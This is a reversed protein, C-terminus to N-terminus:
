RKRICLLTIDDKQNYYFKKIDEVIYNLIDECKKERNKYFVDILRDYGYLQNNSDIAEITGDTFLLLMDGKELNLESNETIGAVDEMIGSWLGKTEIREIKDERKRYVLFDLYLGSYLLRNNDYSFITLTIYDKEQLRNQINDFLTRNLNVIIDKPTNLGSKILSNIMSQTMMMILGSTVGHGTVDGICFWERNNEKIYDFYDGGVEEATIMMGSIEFNTSEFNKPLMATQIRHAIEMEKELREKEIIKKTLIANELTISAASSFANLLNFDSETFIDDNNKETINVCGFVRNKVILPFIIFSDTKYKEKKQFSSNEIEPVILAKKNQLVWYSPSTPDIDIISDKLEKKLTEGNEFISKILWKKNDDSLLLLSGRRSDVFKCALEVILDSLIEINNTEINSDESMKISAEYLLKLNKNAKITEKLLKQYRNGLLLAIQLVLITFGFTALREAKIFDQAILIDNIVTMIFIIVGIILLRAEISKYYFAYKIIIYITYVIIFLEVYMNVYFNFRNFLVPSSTIFLYVVAFFTYIDIAITFKTWIKNKFLFVIFHAWVAFVIFLTGYEIGKLLLFKSISFVEYKIQNVFFFYIACILCVLSFFLFDFKTNQYIFLILYYIFLIIFIIILGLEIFDKIYINKILKAFNGFLFPGEFFGSGHAVTYYGRVIVILTNEGPKILKSPIEYTRRFDHCLNSKGESKKLINGTKGIRIGNFYAVDVNDVRSLIIGFSNNPINEPFYIKLKYIGVKNKITTIRKIEEYSLNDIFNGKIIDKLQNIKTWSHPIKVRISNEETFNSNLAKQLDDETSIDGEYFKFEWLVEQLNYIKDYDTIILADKLATSILTFNLLFLLIFILVKRM